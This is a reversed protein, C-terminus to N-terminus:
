FGCAKAQRVCEDYPIHTDVRGAPADANSLTTAPESRDALRACVDRYLATLPKRNQGKSVYFTRGASSEFDTLSFVASSALRDHCKKLLGRCEGGACFVMPSFQVACPPSQGDGLMGRM